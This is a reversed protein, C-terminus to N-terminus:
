MNRPIVRSLKDVHVVCPRKRTNSILVVRATVDNLLATIKYCGTWWCQLEACQGVRRVPRFMWVLDGVALTPRKARIDYREKHRLSAALARERVDHHLGHLRDRLWVPYQLRSSIDPTEPPLGRVLAPPLNLERGFLMMAPSVGNTVHPSVRLSLMVLPVQLDWDNSNTNVFLSLQTVVSKILREVAGDSQPRMPTTRTKRIGMVELVSKFVASEFSRGQDSHLESPCGFRSFVHTVLAKAVVDSHLSPIPLAEPWRTFYDVAVLLYRHGNATVPFPGAIDVAVREWPVGVTHVRMPARDRTGPGKKRRCRECSLCWLKTDQYMGPWYYKSRIKSLTKNIGLHGGSCPKDHFQTLVAPTFSRPVVLQYTTRRGWTDEFRRHVAGDRLVLSRWQLWLAKSRESRHAM